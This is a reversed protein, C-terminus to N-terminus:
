DKSIWKQKIKISFEPSGFPLLTVIPDSKQKIESRLKRYESNTEELGLVVATKIEDQLSKSPSIEPKLEISLLLHQSHDGRYESKIVFKGTIFNIIIPQELGRKINEPYINLSYFMTAVDQRGYIAILHKTSESLVAAPMKMGRGECQDYLQAGDIIAGEDLINYRILPLSNNATFIIKGNIEECYRYRPNYTVLSPLLETGPFVSRLLNHDGEMFRRLYISFPNEIGVIGADATGYISATDFYPDTSDIGKLLYDRFIESFNEGAFLLKVHYRQLQIGSASVGEIVDKIFPPYGAIVVQEFQSGIKDFIKVIENVNMGPTISVIKLNKDALKNNAALIYTGAIWTGMAFAIIFLTSKQDVHFSNTYIRSLLQASEDVSRNGRFWFFPQGSSGSSMSIIRSDRMDGNILLDRVPYQKLYNEKTMLPVLSFDETTNIKNSDIGNKQLFDRYAPVNAAAMKFTKLAQRFGITNNKVDIVKSSLEWTRM